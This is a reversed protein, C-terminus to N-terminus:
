SGTARFHPNARRLTVEASAGDLIGPKCITVEAAAIRRDVLVERIIEDALRELLAFSTSRVLGLLRRHLDAYDLTDGLDDSKAARDLDIAISLEIEFEQEADREGPNAGHRGRARVNRLRLQDM